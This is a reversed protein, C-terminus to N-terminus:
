RNKESAETSKLPAPTAAVPEHKQSPSSSQKPPGKPTQSFGRNPPGKTPGRVPPPPAQISNSSRISDLFSLPEEEYYDDDEDDDFWGDDDIRNRYRVIVIITVLLIM